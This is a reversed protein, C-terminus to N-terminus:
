VFVKFLTQKAKKENLTVFVAKVTLSTPNKKSRSKCPLLKKSVMKKFQLRLSRGTQKTFIETTALKNDQFIFKNTNTSQHTKLLTNQRDWDPFTGSTSVLPFWDNSMRISM